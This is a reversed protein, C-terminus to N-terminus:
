DTRLPRAHPHRSYLGGYTANQLRSGQAFYIPSDPDDRGTIAFVQVEGELPPESLVQLTTQPACIAPARVISGGDFAVYMVAEQPATTGWAAWLASPQRPDKDGPRKWTLYRATEGNARRCRVDHDGIWFLDRDVFTLANPAHFVPAPYPPVKPDEPDTILV